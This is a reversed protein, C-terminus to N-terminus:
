PAPNKPSTLTDSDDGITSVSEGPCVNFWTVATNDISDVVHLDARGNGDLDPFHECSGQLAGQYVAGKGEWTYASGSAPTPGRNYWVSADGNFKDVWVFDDRGDGNVDVFRINARDKNETKKFQSIYTLSGDNNNLYGWTRGDKEICLYDSRGNGDIDAFRVALDYIGVGRHERCPADNGRPGPNSARVWNSSSRLDGTTKFKNLWLGGMYGTDPNVYIIDCLGDGDWDALHLDRRDVEHGVHDTAAWFVYNEGWYPPSSPFTGGRSEYIRMYGTSHAWVYDMAPKSRDMM